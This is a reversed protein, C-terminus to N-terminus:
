TVKLFPEVLLTINCIGVVRVEDGPKLEIGQDCQAPWWTAQFRVRGPCGPIIAKAVVARDSGSFLQKFHAVERKAAVAVKHELKSQNMRNRRPGLGLLAFVGQHSHGM